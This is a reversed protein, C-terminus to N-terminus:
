SLFQQCNIAFLPFFGNEKPFLVRSHTYMSWYHGWVGAYIPLVLLIYSIPLSGHYSVCSANRTPFSPYIQDNCM